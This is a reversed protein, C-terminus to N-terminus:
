WHVQSKIASTFPFFYINSQFVYERAWYQKQIFGDFVFGYLLSFFALSCNLRYALTNFIFFM